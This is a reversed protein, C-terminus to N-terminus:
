EGARAYLIKRFGRAVETKGEQERAQLIGASVLNTLTQEVLERSLGTEAAIERVQFAGDDIAALVVKETPTRRTILHEHRSKEEKIVTVIHNHLIQSM